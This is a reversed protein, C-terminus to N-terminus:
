LRARCNRSGPACSTSPLRSHLTSSWAATEGMGFCCDAAIPPRHWDAQARGHEVGNHIVTTPFGDCVVKKVLESVAIVHDIAPRLWALRSRTWHGDGHAVMVCLPPKIEHAFEVIGASDSVLMVDCDRCARLVSERGGVELPMRYSKAIQPEIYDGTVVCRTFKLRQPDSFKALSQLWQEIGGQAACTTVHIVRLPEDVTSQNASRQAALAGGSAGLGGSSSALFAGGSSGIGGNLGFYPAYLNGQALGHGYHAAESQCTSYGPFM